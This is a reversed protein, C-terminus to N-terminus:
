VNSPVLYQLETMIDYKGTKFQLKNLKKTFGFKELKLL